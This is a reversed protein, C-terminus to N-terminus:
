LHFECERLPSASRLSRLYAAVTGYSCGIMAALVRSSYVKRHKYIFFKDENTLRYRQNSM